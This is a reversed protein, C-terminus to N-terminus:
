GERKSRQRYANIGDIFNQKEIYHRDYIMHNIMSIAEEAREDCSLFVETGTFRIVTRGTRMLYRERNYDSERQEKTKHFEYGDIEIIFDIDVLFDVRYIGIVAQPEITHEFWGGESALLLAKYFRKELQNM